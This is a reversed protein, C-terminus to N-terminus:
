SSVPSITLQLITTIKPFQVVTSVLYTVRLTMSLWPPRLKKHNRPISFPTVRSNPLSRSYILSTSVVAAKNSRMRLQHRSQLGSCLLRHNSKVLSEIAIHELLEVQLKIAADERIKNTNRQLNKESSKLSPPTKWSQLWLHKPAKVIRNNETLNQPATKRTIIIHLTTAKRKRM